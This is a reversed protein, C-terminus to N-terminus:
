ITRGMRAFSLRLFIIIAMTAGLIAIDLAILGRYSVQALVPGAFLGAAVAGLGGAAPAASFLRETLDVERVVAWYSPLVLGWGLPFLANSAAFAIPGPALVLAFALIITMAGVLAVSSSAVRQGLWAVVASTFIAGFACVGIVLGIFQATLHNAVGIREIFTWYGLIGCNLMAIALLALMAYGGGRAQAARGGTGAADATAHVAVMRAPSAGVVAFGCLVLGAFGVFMGTTGWTPLIVLSLAMSWLAALVGQATAGVAYARGPEAEEGLAAFMIPYLVGLSFGLVGFLVLLAWPSAVLPGALFAALALGLALRYAIRWPVRPVWLPASLSPILGAGLYTSNLQGLLGPALGHRDALAGLVLPQINPLLLSLAGLYAGAYVSPAIRSAVARDMSAPEAPTM